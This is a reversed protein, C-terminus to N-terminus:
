GDQLVAMMKMLGPVGLCCGVGLSETSAVADSPESKAFDEVNQVSRLKADVSHPIM